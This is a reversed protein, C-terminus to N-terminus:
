KRKGTLLVPMFLNKIKKVTRLIRIRVIGIKTNKIVKKNKNLKKLFNSQLHITPKNLFLLLVKMMKKM